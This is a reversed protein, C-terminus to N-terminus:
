LDKRKADGVAKLAASWSIQGSVPQDVWGDFVAPLIHGTSHQLCKCVLHGELAPISWCSVKEMAAPWSTGQIQGSVLKRSVTQCDLEGAKIFRYVASEPTSNFDGMVMALANGNCKHVIDNMVSLLTRAQAIQLGPPCWIAGHISVPGLWLLM